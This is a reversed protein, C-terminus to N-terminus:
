CDRAEFEAKSSLFSNASGILMMAVNEVTPKRRGFLRDAEPKPKLTADGEPEDHRLWKFLASVFARYSGADEHWPPFDEHLVGAMWEIVQVLEGTKEDMGRKPGPSFSEVLRARIEEGVSSHSLSAEVALREYIASPVRVTTQRDARNRAAM